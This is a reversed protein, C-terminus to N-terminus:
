KNAPSCGGAPPPRLFRGPSHWDIHLACVGAPVIFANSVRFLQHGQRYQAAPLGHVGNCQRPYSGKCLTIQLPLRAQLTQMVQQSVFGIRTMLPHARQPALSFGGDSGTIPLQFHTGKKGHPKAKWRRARRYFLYRYQNHAAAAPKPIPRAFARWRL